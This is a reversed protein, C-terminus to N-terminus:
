SKELESQKKEAGAVLLRFQYFRLGWYLNSIVCRFVEMSSGTKRVMSRQIIWNLQAPVEVIRTGLVMAKFIIEQNIDMTKLNLSSLFKRDYARVMCTLTSFNNKAALSLFRNALLSLTRRLWPVNSVKGEKMYPSAIVIKVNTKCITALLKGIHDPSYSLDFDVTVVYDGNCKKFAYRLTRSLRLNVKHHFVHINNRTKAFAEALEGTDDTSGDNVFIMEWRYQDELSEMYECLIALHKEVISAENYAPVVISVFPKANQKEESAPNLLEKQSEEIKM